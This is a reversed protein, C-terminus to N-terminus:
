TTCTYQPCPSGVKGRTFAQKSFEYHLSGPAHGENEPQGNEAASSVPTAPQLAPDEEGVSSPMDMPGEGESLQEEASVTDLPYLEEEPTLSDPLGKGFVGGGGGDEEEEEEDEEDEERRRQRGGVPVSFPRPKLPGRGWM